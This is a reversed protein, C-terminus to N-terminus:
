RPLSGAPDLALREELELARRRVPLSVGRVTVLEESLLQALTGLEEAAGLAMLPVVPDAAFRLGRRVAPVVVESEGTIRWLAWAALISLRPDDSKVATQLDPVAAQAKKGLTGLLWAAAEAPSLPVERLGPADVTYRLSRDPIQFRVEQALREVAGPLDDGLRARVAAALVRVMPASHDAYGRVEPLAAVASSGMAGLVMLTEALVPSEPGLGKRVETLGVASAPGIRRLTELVVPQLEPDQLWPVLRPVAPSAAPGYVGLARVVSPSPPVTASFSNQLLVLAEEVPSDTVWLAQAAADRIAPRDDAVGGVVLATVEPSYPAIRLAAVLAERASEDQSEAWTLVTPLASAAEPGYEGLVRLLRPRLEEPSAVNLLRFEPRWSEPLWAYVKQSVRESRTPQWDLLRVLEPILTSGERVAASEIEADPGVRKVWVDFSDGPYATGYQRGGVILGV